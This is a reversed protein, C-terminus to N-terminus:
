RDDWTFASKSTCVPPESLQNDEALFASHSHTICSTDAAVSSFVAPVCWLLDPKAPPQSPNGVCLHTSCWLYAKPNPRLLSEAPESFSFSSCCLLLTTVSCPSVCRSTVKDRRLKEQMGRWIWFQKLPECFQQFQWSDLVGFKHLLFSPFFIVYVNTFRFQHSVEPSAWIQNQLM